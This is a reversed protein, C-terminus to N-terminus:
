WARWARTACSGADEPRGTWSNWYQTRGYVMCARPHAELNRSASMGQTAHGEHELYRVREPQKAAYRRAIETGGDTSGEDVLLLEWREWTQAFVSRIADELFAEADLFVVVTSVLADGTM